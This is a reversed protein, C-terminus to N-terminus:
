EEEDSSDFILDERDGVLKAFSDNMIGIIMSAAMNRNDEDDSKFLVHIHELQDHDDLRTLYKINPHGERKARKLYEILEQDGNEDVPEIVITRLMNIPINVTDTIVYALNKWYNAQSKEFLTQTLRQYDYPGTYFILGYSIVDGVDHVIFSDGIELKTKSM